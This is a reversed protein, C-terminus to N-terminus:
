SDFEDGYIDPALTSVGNLTARCAGCHRHGAHTSIFQPDRCRLCPQRRPWRSKVDRKKAHRLTLLKHRQYVGGSSRGIAEAIQIWSIKAFVSALITADDAPTFPRAM